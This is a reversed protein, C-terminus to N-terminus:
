ECELSIINPFFSFMTPWYNRFGYVEATCKCGIHSHIYGKVSLSNVKNHYHSDRNDFEGISTWVVYSYSFMSPKVIQHEDLIVFHETRVPWFNMAYLVLKISAAYAILSFVCLIVAKLMFLWIGKFMKVCGKSVLM